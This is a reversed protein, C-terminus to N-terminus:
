IARLVASQELGLIPRLEVVHIAKATNHPHPDAIVKVSDVYEPKAMPMSCAARRPAKEKRTAAMSSRVISKSAVM